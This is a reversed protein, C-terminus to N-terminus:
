HSGVSKCYTHNDQVILFLNYCTSSTICSSERREDCDDREDRLCCRSIAMNVSRTDAGLPGLRSQTATHCSACLEVLHPHPVPGDDAVGMSSAWRQSRVKADMPEVCPGNDEKGYVYEAATYPQLWSPNHPGDSTSEAQSKWPNFDRHWTEQATERANDDDIIDDHTGRTRADEDSGGVRRARDGRRQKGQARKDPQKSRREERAIMRMIKKHAQSGWSEGASFRAM